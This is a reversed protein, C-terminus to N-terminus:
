RAGWWRVYAALSVRVDPDVRELLRLEGGSQPSGAVGWPSDRRAHFRSAQLLTAMKVAEPVALWGFTATVDVDASPGSSLELSTWPRGKADANRPRLDFDTIATDGSEVAPTSMVDDIEVVWACLRRDYVAEYSRTQSATLGFQRDCARDVARSAATLALALQADDDADLIRRYDRLEQVTAYDPAWSM